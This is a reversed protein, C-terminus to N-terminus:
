ARTHIHACVCVCVHVCARMCVYMYAREVCRGVWMLVCLVM